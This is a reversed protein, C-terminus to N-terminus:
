YFLTIIRLPLKTGFPIRLVVFPCKQNGCRHASSVGPVQLIPPLSVAWYGLAGLVPRCCSLILQNVRQETGPRPLGHTRGRDRRGRQFCRTM